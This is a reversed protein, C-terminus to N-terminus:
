FYQTSVRKKILYSLLINLISLLINAFMENIIIEQKTIQKLIYKIRLLIM